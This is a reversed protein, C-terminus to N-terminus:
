PRHCLEFNDQMVFILEDPWKEILMQLLDDVTDGAGGLITGSGEQLYRGVM